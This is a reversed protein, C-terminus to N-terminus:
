PKKRELEGAASAFEERLAPSIEVPYPEPNDLRRHKEPLRRLQRAAHQRIEELSPLDAVPAGDLMITNLLPEAEGPCQEQAGAIVDCTLMGTGPDSYRHVQKPGPYTAKDPSLKVRHEWRGDKEISVLKYVGGLFPADESTVM